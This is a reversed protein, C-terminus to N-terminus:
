PLPTERQILHLYNGEPDTFFVVRNGKATQPEGLFEVGAAKLGQYVNDFDRVALALHRIGPATMTQAARDGQATIIEIMSGNPAKVFVTRGSDYNIAFGLRSVYWQALARPDASAIATHELGEIM